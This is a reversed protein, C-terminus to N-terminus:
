GRSANWGRWTAAGSEVEVLTRLTDVVAAREKGALSYLPEVPEARACAALLALVLAAISRAM